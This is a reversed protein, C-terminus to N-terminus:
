KTYKRLIKYYLNIKGGILHILLELELKDSKTLCVFEWM